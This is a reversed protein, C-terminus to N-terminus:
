CLLLVRCVGVVVGERGGRAAFRAVRVTTGMHVDQYIEEIALRAKANAEKSRQEATRQQTTHDRWHARRVSDASAALVRPLPKLLEM